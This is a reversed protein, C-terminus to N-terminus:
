FAFRNCVNQRLEDVPEDVILINNFMGHGFYEAVVSFPEAARNLLNHFTEHQARSENQAQLADILQMNKARCVPCDKDNESYGRLCSFNM